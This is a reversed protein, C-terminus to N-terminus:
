TICTIVLLAECFIMNILGGPSEFVVMLDIMRIFRGIYVRKEYGSVQCIVLDNLRPVLKNASIISGKAIGLDPVSQKAKLCYCHFEDSWLDAFSERQGNASTEQLIGM